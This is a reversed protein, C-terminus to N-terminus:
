SGSSADLSRRIGRARRRRRPRHASRDAGRAGKPEVLGRSGRWDIPDIQPNVHRLGPAADPAAPGFPRCAAFGIAPLGEVLGAAIRNWPPVLVPLVRSGLKGRAQALAATADNRLADTGRHPGLEARKAEPPAHNTHALGHVLISAFSEADLRDRLSPQASAPIAAIAIPVSYRGSLALLRELAPTHATADDDRWWVTISRGRDAARCLADDLSRWIAPDLGKPSRSARRQRMFGEVIEVTRRAGDLDISAAAPRPGALAADVRAALTLASLDAQPLVHALGRVSLCEARLRQETEGGVEFPVLISRTGARLLDVITNYGAQSVSLASHSL